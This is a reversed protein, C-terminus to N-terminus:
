VQTEYKSFGSSPQPVEAAQLTTSHGAPCTPERGPLWVAVDSTAVATFTIRGTTRKHRSSLGFFTNLVSRVHRVCGFAASEAGFEPFLWWRVIGNSPPISLKLLCPAHTDRFQLHSALVGTPTFPGALLALINPQDQVPNNSIITPTKVVQWVCYV